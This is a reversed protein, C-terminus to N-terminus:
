SLRVLFMKWICIQGKNSIWTYTIRIWIEVQTRFNKYSKHTVVHCTAIWPAQSKLNTFSKHSVAIAVVLNGIKPLPHSCDALVCKVSLCVTPLHSHRCKGFLLAILRQHFRQQCMVQQCQDIKASLLHRHRCNIDIGITSLYRSNRIKVSM